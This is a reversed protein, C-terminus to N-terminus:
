EKAAEDEDVPAAVAIARRFEKTESLIEYSLKEINAIRAMTTEDSFDINLMFKAM